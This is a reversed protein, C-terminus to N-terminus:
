RGPRQRRRVHDDLLEDLLRDGTEYGIVPGRELAKQQEGPLWDKVLQEARKLKEAAEAERARLEKTRMFKTKRGKPFVLKWYVWLVALVPWAITGFITGFFTGPLDYWNTHGAYKRSGRDNAEQMKNENGLILIRLTVATGVVYVLLAVIWVFASM